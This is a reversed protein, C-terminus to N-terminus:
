YKMQFNLGVFPGDGVDVRNNHSDSLQRGEFYFRDFDYGASLDLDAHPGVVWKVGATLRKDYYFFRDRDDLREALFYNETNWDFGGYVRWAPAVRYIAKAHVNTLLAYSLQLTLDETPRYNIDAFPFGVTAQFQPSPAWLFAVGPIPINALVQSNTSYNLSFLWANHEGQPVRLFGTASASVENVSDFPKDSASGVSVTGGAIWGNDFLHRYTSGLRVDWLEQPFPMGTTPLVAGTHFSENHVHATFSWENACDQWCPLALSLDQQVYGLNTPQGAVPENPFWIVRYDARDQMHGVLPNMWSGM